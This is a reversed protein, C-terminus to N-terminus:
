IEDKQCNGGAKDENADLRTTYDGLRRMKGGREARWIDHARFRAFAISARSRFDLAAEDFRLGIAFSADSAFRLAVAVTEIQAQHQTRFETKGIKPYLGWFQIM